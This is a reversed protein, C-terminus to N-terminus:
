KRFAKELSYVDYRIDKIKAAVDPNILKGFEEIARLAEEIRSFNAAIIDQIESRKNELEGSIKRGVDTDSDRADLLEDRSLGFELTTEVIAHRIDKIRGAIEKDDSIFRAIEELVRAGERARNLNADIIRAIKKRDTM